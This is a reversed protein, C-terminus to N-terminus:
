TITVSEVVRVIEFRPSDDLMEAVHGSCTDTCDEPGPEWGFWVEFETPKQCREELKSQDPICCCLRQTTPM